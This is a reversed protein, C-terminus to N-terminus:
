TGERPRLNDVAPGVSVWYHYETNDLGQQTKYIKVNNKASIKLGNPM